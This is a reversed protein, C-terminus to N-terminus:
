LSRKKKDNKLKAFGALTYAFWPLPDKLSWIQDTSKRFDFWSPKCHFRDKSKLFWLVDTHLYRLYRGKPYKMYPTVPLGLHDEVIQRSFDVGASYCIKVSGTIRPNIEMIKAIGDRPDQILDIDAYGRWKIKKLLKM